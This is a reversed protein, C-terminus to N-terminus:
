GNGAVIIWITLIALLLFIGTLLLGSESFRPGHVSMDVKPQKPIRPKKRRGAAQQRAPRIPVGTTYDKQKM